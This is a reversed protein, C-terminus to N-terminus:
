GSFRGFLRLILMVFFIRGQMIQPKHVFLSLSRGIQSHSANAKAQHYHNKLTLTIILPRKGHHDAEAVRKAVFLDLIQELCFGLTAAHGFDISAAGAALRWFATATKFGNLFHDLRM